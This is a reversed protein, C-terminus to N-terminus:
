TPTFDLPYFVILVNKKGKLDSLRVATDLHSNLEFDPADAGPAIIAM